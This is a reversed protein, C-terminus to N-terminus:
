ATPVTFVDAIHAAAQAAIADEVAKGLATTATYGGQVAHAQSAAIMQATVQQLQEATVGTVDAVSDVLTLTGPTTALAVAEAEAQTAATVQTSEGRLGTYDTVEVLWTRDTM